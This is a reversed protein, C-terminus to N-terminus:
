LDPRRKKKRKKKLLPYLLRNDMEEPKLLNHLLGNSVPKQMLVNVQKKDKEQQNTVPSQSESTALRKQLAGVSFEKGLESGNYVTKNRHDVFTIGYILGTENRRLITDINESKLFAMLTNLDGPKRSFAQDIGQKLYIRKDLRGKRNQEFKLELHKLTPKSYISSAKIPVGIKNGNQDLIHYRLGKYKHIRSGEKGGDAAINFTKLVANFLPFSIFNYQNLVNDMVNTISRKTEHKGYQVKEDLPRAAEPIQKDGPKILNFEKEIEKRAPESKLKGINFTDIRKGNNQINTTVIHIHPHAADRHEYVLYPQAGFGIKEMYRIAIAKLIEQNKNEGPHFNLSIHLTNSKQARENLSILDNFRKLKDYFTLREPDRLFNGAYICSAVNRQVKQENYNLVRKM